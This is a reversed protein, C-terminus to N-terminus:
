VKVRTGAPIPKGTGEYKALNLNLAILRAESIGNAHAIQYLDEHGNATIYHTATPPGTGGGGTKHGRPTGPKHGTRASIRVKPPYGDKGPVPPDGELAIAAEIVHQQDNDLSLGELYRGLALLITMESFGSHRLQRNVARSWEANTTIATTTTTGGGGTGYGYPWSQYGGGGFGATGYPSQGYGYGYTGYGGAGYGYTGYGGTGYGYTSGTTATKPKVFHKYVLYGGVVVVAAGGALVAGRPQAGILPLKIKDPM